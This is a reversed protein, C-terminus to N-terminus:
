LMLAKPLEFQFMREKGLAQFSTIKHIVDRSGITGVSGSKKVEDM